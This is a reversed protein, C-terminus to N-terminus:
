EFIEKMVRVVALEEKTESDSKPVEVKLERPRRAAAENKDRDDEMRPAGYTIKAGSKTEAKLRFQGYGAKSLGVVEDLLGDETKKMGSAASPEAHGRLRGVKAAQMMEHLREGPNRPHPNFPRVKFDFEVVRYRLMAREVDQLEATKQYEFQYDSLYRIIAKLRAIGSRAPLRDPPSGEKVAAIGLRPVVIARTFVTDNASTQVLTFEDNARDWRNEVRKDIAFGVDFVSAPEGDINRRRYRMVYNNLDQQGPDPSRYPAGQGKVSDFITRHKRSAVVDDADDLIVYRYFSYTSFRM